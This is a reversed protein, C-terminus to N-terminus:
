HYPYSPASRRGIRIMRIRNSRACRKLRSDCPGNIYQPRRLNTTVREEEPPNIPDRSGLANPGSQITAHDHTPRQDM